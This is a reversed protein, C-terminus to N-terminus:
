GVGLNSLTICEKNHLLRRYFHVRLTVTVGVGRLARGRVMAEGSGHMRWRLAVIIEFAQHRIKALNAPDHLV